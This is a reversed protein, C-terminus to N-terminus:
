RVPRWQAIHLKTVVAHPITLSEVQHQPVNGELHFSTFLDTIVEPSASVLYQKKSKRKSHMTNHM